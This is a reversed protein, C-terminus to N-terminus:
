TRILVCAEMTKPSDEGQYKCRRCLASALFVETTVRSRDSQGPKRRWASGTLSDESKWFLGSNIHFFHILFPSIYSEAYAGNWSNSYDVINATVVQATVLPRRFRSSESSSKTLCLLQNNFM